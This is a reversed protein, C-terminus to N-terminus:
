RAIHILKRSLIKNMASLRVVYMGDARGGPDFAFVHAGRKFGGRALEAVLAGRADFAELSAEGDGPMTFEVMATSSFPQRGIVRLDLETPLLVPGGPVYGMQEYRDLANAAATRLETVNSGAILAFAVTTDADPPLVIPGAGIIMSCDGVNSQENLVGSAMASWKEVQYFGGILPPANNDLADFNMPQNGLLIAGALPLRGNQRNITYALRHELDASVQDFAGGTGLDWDLYLACHLNDLTRGSGNHIRYFLFTTKELGPLQHQLTTLHVDIGIRQRDTLHSDDFRATGTEVGVERRVRYPEAVRLGTSQAAGDGVRVVDALHDADIGILVGGEALMNNSSDLRFGNGQSNFPFDDFAIRGNGTFTVATRNYATTGYNPNVTLEFSRVALKTAGEAIVLRLQLRYDLPLPAPVRFRFTGASSTRVEGGAVAGFEEQPIEVPVTGNEVILQVRLHEVPALVNRVTVRIEVEEDPEVVNDPREQIADIGIVDVAVASPGMALARELNLRGNGLLYAYDPNVADIDDSTARLVAAIQEPTLNPYKLAVLAAAGAVIPSAMSTGNASRYSGAYVPETSFIGDGPAAIGVFENFNSFTSRRDGQELSAVSLVHRYSAPYATIRAGNNGAAAVVLSGMATVTDILEQESRSFGAGGWSCNIIRAGMRAAYLIGDPGKTITPDGSSADDTIKVSLLRAGHAVGAIGVGNNGIAAAIGAVHTGHWYLPTPDNDPTYGDFGGFDYGAWDDVLGNGDDDVGNTRRDRGSGDRGNEGPNRYIAAALDPHLPDIGTDEIAILMTSDGRQIDWAREAGITNLYWQRDIYPDNPAYNLSRLYVPEAYEVGQLGAITAAVYAPPDASGYTVVLIRGLSAFRAPVATPKHLPATREPRLLATDLWSSIGAIRFRDAAPALAKTAFTILSPEAATVKVIIRGPLSEPVAPQARLAPMAVLVALASLLIAYSRSM